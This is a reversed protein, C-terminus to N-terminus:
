TRRRSADPEISNHGGHGRADRCIHPAAAGQGTQLTETAAKAALSPSDGPRGASNAPTLAAPIILILKRM